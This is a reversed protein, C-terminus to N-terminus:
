KKDGNVVLPVFVFGAHFLEKYKEKSLKEIEFIGNKVPIVMRGNIALQRKLEDPVKEAEASVLIRDFPAAEPFGKSGDQCFFEVRKSSVFKYKEVNKKGFECLEPIREIAFVHGKPGVIDALLATTWGSGSGIDLVRNNKCPKLLELMFAVTYPQSITQGYGIPLPVNESARPRMEDPVFDERKIKEFAEIINKNNLVGEEILYTAIKNM